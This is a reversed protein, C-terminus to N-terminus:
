AGSWPKKGRVLLWVFVPAGTLATLVGLPIETKAISRALTDVIVVFAAGLLASAPLLRDYRPGVLFRSMHPVMLGVWGIVGSIAVASATMLTSAVIVILRLRAVSVGLSRADDDGLSLVGIRWRLAILPAFGITVPVILGTLDEAKVGSLSGLLWFTIAPLQEYPDAITKIFAIGSSALTGIVIGALVLVLTENQSRLVSALSVVIGVVALGGVFGALQIGAVSFSLLIGVVAGLGAGSSVGLVDPSILPNRFITQYTAGACALAAGVFAAAAIRPLRIRFLVTDITEPGPTGAIKRAIANAIELPPIAYPGITAAIVVSLLLIAILALTVYRARATDAERM